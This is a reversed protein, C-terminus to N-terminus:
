QAPSPSNPYMAAVPDSEPEELQINSLEFCICDCEKGEFDKRRSISTITALTCLQVNEGVTAKTIDIRLLQLQRDELCLTPKEDLAEDPNTLIM